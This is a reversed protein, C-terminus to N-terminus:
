WDCIWYKQNPTIMATDNAIGNVYVKLGFLRGDYVAPEILRMTVNSVFISEGICGNDVYADIGKKISELASELTPRRETM